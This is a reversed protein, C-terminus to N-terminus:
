MQTTANKGHPGFLTEVPSLASDPKHGHSSWGRVTKGLNKHWDVIIGLSGDLGVREFPSGCGEPGRLPGDSVIQRRRLSKPIPALWDTSLSEFM